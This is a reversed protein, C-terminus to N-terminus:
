AGFVDKFYGNACPSCVDGFYGPSCVCGQAMDAMHNAPCPFTSIGRQAHFTLNEEPSTLTM